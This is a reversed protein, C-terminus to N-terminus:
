SNHPFPDTTNTPRYPPMRYTEVRKAVVKGHSIILFYHKQMVVNSGVDIREIYEWEETQAGTSHIAYPRGHEKQVEGPTSGIPISAFEDYTMLSRSCYCATLLLLIVLSKKM